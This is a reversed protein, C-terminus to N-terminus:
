STEIHSSSRKLQLYAGYHENYDTAFDYKPTDGFNLTEGIAMSFFNKYSVGRIDRIRALELAPEVPDEDSLPFTGWHIAVSQKAKIDEHILIAEEPNCHVHKMFWRPSYAGVAITAIDFSGFRDGITKFLVPDYATDGSFFFKGQKGAVAFAGWLCQNRDFLTRATWHKTPLFTIEASNGESSFHRFSEWWDMEKVNTVGATALVDKVGLPVIRDYM